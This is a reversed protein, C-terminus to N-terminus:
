GVNGKWAWGPPKQLRLERLEAHLALTAYAGAMTAATLRETESQSKDKAWQLESIAHRKMHDAENTPWDEGAVNYGQQELDDSDKDSM